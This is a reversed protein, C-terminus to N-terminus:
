QEAAQCEFVELKNHEGILQQEEKILSSTIIFVTCPGAKTLLFSAL